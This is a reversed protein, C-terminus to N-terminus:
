PYDSQQGQQATDYAHAVDHENRYLLTRALEAYALSESCACPGDQTHDYHLTHCYGREETVYTHYATYDDEKTEESNTESTKKASTKKSTTTSTKEEKKTSKKETSKKEKVESSKEQTKTTSKKKKTEESNNLEKKEKTM